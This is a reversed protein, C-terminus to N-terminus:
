LNVLYQEHKYFKFSATGAIVTKWLIQKMTYTVIDIVINVLWTTGVINVELFKYTEFRVFTSQM